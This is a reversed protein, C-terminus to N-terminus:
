KHLIVQQVSGAAREGALGIREEWAELYAAHRGFTKEQPALLTRREVREM